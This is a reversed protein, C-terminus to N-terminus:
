ELGGMKRLQLVFEYVILPDTPSKSVSEREKCRQVWAMLKPCEAEISFEGCAEYSFFWCYYPLLVTDLFGFTEGGFSLKDGLEGELIKLCGIMEEKAAERVEGKNMLIRKGSDYIRKDIFDAWFRAQSRHFPDSPLLPLKDKWTEDIYHLIVLSECISKGNHILVPIMKHVPHNMQLLLPSKDFLNDEKYQYKIGKEALAIKVRMGFTSPLVDLLIVEEGEAM